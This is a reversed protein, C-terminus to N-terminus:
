GGKVMYAVVWVLVTLVVSAAINLAALRNATVPDIMRGTDWILYRIGGLAHHILAWTFCFLIVRGPISAFLGNVLDFYAPGSAAAILWWAILATGFYLAAGTIRHVISMVMTLLLRYVQLHPSLPRNAAQRTNAM